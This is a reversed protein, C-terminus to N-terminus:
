SFAVLEWNEELRRGVLVLVVSGRRFVIRRRRIQGRVIPEGCTANLVTYGGMLTVM